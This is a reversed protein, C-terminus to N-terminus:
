IEAILQDILKQQTTEDMKQRLIKETATLVLTVTQQQLEKKTKSIEQAIDLKTKALIKACEEKTTRKGEEILDSAQHSALNLMETVKTKAEAMQQAVNKQALELARQGREAAELGAAIKQQREEMVKVLPPWVYKMTVWVLVAFTLMEGFLTVNIDM